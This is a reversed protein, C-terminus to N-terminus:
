SSAAPNFGFGWPNAAFYSDWQRQNIYWQGQPYVTNLVLYADAVTDMQFSARSDGSANQVLMGLAGRAYPQVMSGANEAAWNWESSFGGVYQARIDQDTSNGDFFYNFELIGYQDSVLATGLPYGPPACRGNKVIGNLFMNHATNPRLGYITVGFSQPIFTTSIGATTIGNDAGSLISGIGFYDTAANYAAEAGGYGGAATYAQTFAQAQGLTDNVLQLMLTPPQVDMNGVYSAATASPSLTVHSGFQSPYEMGWRWHDYRSLRSSVITYNQGLAPNHTWTIKGGGAVFPAGFRQLPTFTEGNFFFGPVAASYLYAIDNADLGVANNYADRILVGNQYIWFQDPESANPGFLPQPIPAWTFTLPNTVTPRINFYFTVPGAVDAM